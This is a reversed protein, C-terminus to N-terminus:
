AKRKEGLNKSKKFMRFQKQHNDKRLCESKKNLQILCFRIYILNVVLELKHVSWAQGILKQRRTRPLDGIDTYHDPFGFVRELEPIWLLSEENNDLMSVPMENRCGQLLSNQKTTVTRLKVVQSRRGPFLSENLLDPALNKNYQPPCYMNPINGWFLRSRNQASFYKADLTAPHCMFFRTMTAKCHKQMSSVNEFLWFLPRDPTMLAQLEKLIRYFEFFLVGTGDESLGKRGPNAVSFENCPSGGILLDIPHIKELMESNINTVDGLWHVVGGGHRGKSVLLSDEDIESAYYIELDVDLQDLVVKGTSIGDFLSLVKMRRRTRPLISPNPQFMYNLEEKWNEVVGNCGILHHSTPDCIFCTWMEGSKIAHVQSKGLIDTMCRCCFVKNCGLKDCLFVEGAQGCIVCFMNFGDTDFVFINDILRNKCTICLKGLLFPHNYAGINARCSLCAGKESKWNFWTEQNATNSDIDKNLKVRCDHNSHNSNVDDDEEDSDNAIRIRENQKSYEDLIKIIWDPISLDTEKLMNDAHEDNTDYLSIWNLAIKDSDANKGIRSYYLKCAESVGKEYNKKFNKNNYNQDFTTRFDVVNNLTVESVKHDGFWFVWYNDHSAQKQGCMAGDIIVAPWFSCFYLRAWVIQGIEFIKDYSSEQDCLLLSSKLTCKFKKLSKKALQSSKFKKKEPSQFNKELNDKHCQDSKQVNISVKRLGLLSSQIEEIIDIVCGAFTFM